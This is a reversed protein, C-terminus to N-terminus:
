EARMADRSAIARTGASPTPLRLEHPIRLDYMVGGRPLSAELAMAVGVKGEGPGGDFPSPAKKYGLEQVGGSMNKRKRPDLAALRTTSRRSMYDIGDAYLLPRSTVRAGAIDRNTSGFRRFYPPEPANAYYRPSLDASERARLNLLGPLVGIAEYDPDISATWRRRERNNRETEARAQRQEVLQLATPLCQRRDDRGNYFPLRRGAGGGGGAPRLQSHSSMDFATSARTSGQQQRPLGLIERQLRAQVRDFAADDRVSLSGRGWTPLTLQRVAHESQTVIPQAARSQLFHLDTHFSGPLVGSPPPWEDHTADKTWVVSFPFPEPKIVAAAVPKTPTDMM